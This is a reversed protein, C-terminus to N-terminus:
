SINRSPKFVISSTSSIAFTIPSADLPYSNNFISSFLIGSIIKISISIGTNYNIESNINKLRNVMNIIGFGKPRDIVETYNFGIGNDRYNIKLTNNDLRDFNISINNANAHKITNNILEIIVRYLTVEISNAWREKKDFNYICQIDINHHIKQIFLEVAEILGFNVLIHPNLNNSIEKLSIIAEEINKNGKEIIIKRKEPDKSEGLWQFYLKITSLIPGLGDHLERALRSREKEEGTIIAHVVHKENAKRVSIDRLISLLAPKGNYKILASNIEVPLKNENTLNLEIEIPEVKINKSIQLIREYIHAHFEVPIFDFTNKGLWTVNFKKFM